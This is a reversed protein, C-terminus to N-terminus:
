VLQIEGFFRPFDVNEDSDLCPVCHAKTWSGHSAVCEGCQACDGCYASPNCKVFSRPAVCDEILRSCSSEGHHRFQVTTPDPPALRLPISHAGVTRCSIYPSVVVKWVTTLPKRCKWRLM